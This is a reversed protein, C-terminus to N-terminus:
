HIRYRIGLNAGFGLTDYGNVQQYSKDFLNTISGYVDVQNNATYNVNVNVLTHGGLTVNPDRWNLAIDEQSGTSQLNININFDEDVQWSTNISGIHKPRRIEAFNNEKSDTYTYAATIELNDRIKFLSSVEVGERTSSTSLNVPSWGGLIENELKAKFMTLGLSFNNSELGADFGIEYSESQEPKLDPNPTFGSYIGYLETFTPNKVATGLAGRLRINKSLRYITEFRQTSSTGFFDNDDFRGSIGFTMSEIPSMRHEISISNTKRQIIKGAADGGWLYGEPFFQKFEENNKELALSIQQNMDELHFSGIYRFKKNGSETYGNGINGNVQRIFNANEFYSDNISFSHNSVGDASKFNLTVKNLSKQFDTFQEQPTGDFDNLGFNRNHTLSFILQENLKYGAKLNFATNRYGDKDNGTSPKLNIGETELHSGSLRLNFNNNKHGISFGNNSTARWGLESFVNASFPQDAKKTIINIVGAIAESGHITSQPGRIIEIREIDTVSLVGLNAADDQSSDNVKVGDIKVLIHNSESGRSRISTLAGLPGYSSVSLGPVDRLINGLNHAARLKIKESDIVTIANASRNAAIPILSASVLVEEIESSGESVNLSEQANASSLAFFSVLSLGLSLKTFKKMMLDQVRM